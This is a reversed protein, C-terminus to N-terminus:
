RSPDSYEAEMERKYELAVSIGMSVGDLLSGTRTVVEAFNRLNILSLGPLSPNGSKDTPYRFKQSTHDIESFQRICKEVADLNEAPDEPWVKEIIDGVNKGCNM